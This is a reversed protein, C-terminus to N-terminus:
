EPIDIMDNCELSTNWMTLQLDHRSWARHVMGNKKKGTNLTLIGSHKKRFCKLEGEGEWRDENKGVAAEGGNHIFSRRQRWIGGELKRMSEWKKEPLGHAWKHFIGLSDKGFYEHNKLHLFTQIQVEHAELFNRHTTHDCCLFYFGEGISSRELAHVRTTM